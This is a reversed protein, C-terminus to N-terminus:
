QCKKEVEEYKYHEFLKYNKLKNELYEIDEKKWDVEFRSKHLKKNIINNVNNFYENSYEVNLFNCIRKLETKTNKVFKEFNVDLVKIGIDECVKKIKNNVEIFNLLVNIGKKNNAKNTSLMDFPNRTVHLIKIPCKVYQQFAKLLIFSDKFLMGTTAEGKKDGLVKLKTYKGQYSDKITYDYKGEKRGKDSQKKSTEILDNFLDDKNQCMNDLFNYEHAIIINKHADLISGILSHGSRSYGIFFCFQEPKYKKINNSKNKQINLKYQRDEESIELWDYFDKQGVETNLVASMDFIRFNDPYKKMLEKAKKYYDDYYQEISEKKNKNEYNPFSKGFNHIANYKWVDEDTKRMFSEVTENKERRLCFIKINKVVQIFKEAYNLYYAGIDGFYKNPYNKFQKFRHIFYVEDYDWLLNPQMEHVMNCLKCKNLLNYISVSGNRGTGCGLILKGEKKNNM